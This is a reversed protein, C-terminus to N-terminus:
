DYLGLAVLDVDASSLVELSNIFSLGFKDMMGTAVAKGGGGGGGLEEGDNTFGEIM